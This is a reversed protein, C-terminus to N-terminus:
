AKRAVYFIRDTTRGPKKMTYAQYTQIENFGATQLMERVEQERYAYQQHVVDTKTEGQANNSSFHLLVTCLRTTHEYSSTWYYKLPADTGLNDQTFYCNVLAYESNMDFVFLGQRSLHMAVREFAQQLRDPQLIYNLSDFLSICLDFKRGPLNLEAADQVHFELRSNQPAKQKAEEIMAASLDVGTVQYGRQALLLSVTGTGCALDLISRPRANREQLLRHLYHVWNAYPVGAMLEDYLGAIRQFQETPEFEM